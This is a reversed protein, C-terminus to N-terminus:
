APGHGEAVARAAVARAASVARLARALPAEGQLIAEEQPVEVSVPVDPPLARLFGAVDFDGQGPLGRERAAEAERAGPAVRAPGDCLQALLVSGAPLAAVQAVDGGSRVLHLLDLTIGVRGPRGIRAVEAIAAPLDPVLSPPYFEVGVALGRGAAEECFAAFQDHRRGADRDYLLVNVARIGLDAAADLAPRFDTAVSRGHLTFPYALDMRVGREQFRSRVRRRAAADTVLDYDAMRPLVSMAHLFLCVGDCGTAAALDPLDWPPVDIVTLHDLLLHMYAGRRGAGVPGVSRVMHEIRAITM